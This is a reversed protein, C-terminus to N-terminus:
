LKQLATQMEDIMKQDTEALANQSKLNDLIELAKQFTQKAEAKQNLKLEM